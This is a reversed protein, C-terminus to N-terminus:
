KVWAKPQSSPMNCQWIIHSLNQASRVVPQNAQFILRREKRGQGKWGQQDSQDATASRSSMYVSSLTCDTWCLFSSDKRCKWPVSLWGTGFFQVWLLLTCDAWCLFSSDNRCKSCYGTSLMFLAPFRYVTKYGYNAAKIQMIKRKILRIASLVPGRANGRDPFSTPFTLLQWFAVAARRMIMTCSWFMMTKGQIILLHSCPLFTVWNKYRPPNLSM